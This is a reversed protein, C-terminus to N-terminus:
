GTRALAVTEPLRSAASDSPALYEEVSVLPFTRLLSELKAYTTGLNAYCRFRRLPSMPLRPQEPDIDRPHLYFMVPMGEAFVRRAMTQILWSPALRMYGGGFFCVRLGLVPAVSMPVEILPRGGEVPRFAIHPAREATSLGGHPRRAPFISCDYTHGAEALCQFFWPTRATVSFGPARYGWVPDGSVDQLIARARHADEAFEKPTMTYVLRHSYGHSAIAHGRARAARVLQPYREAIWGLFFMTATTGHDSLLDLIRHLNHEVRSPLSAWASLSPATDLDLIHFWDEVDVSLMYAPTKPLCMEKAGERHEPGRLLAPDASAAVQNM